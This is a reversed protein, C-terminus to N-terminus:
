PTLLLEVSSTLEFPSDTGADEGGDAAAYTGSAHVTLTYIGPPFFAGKPNTTDSPGSWNVGDWRFEYM